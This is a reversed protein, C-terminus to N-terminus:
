NAPWSPPRVCLRDSPRQFNRQMSCGLNTSTGHIININQGGTTVFAAVSGTVNEPTAGMQDLGAGDGDFTERKQVVSKEGVSFFQIPDFFNGFPPIFLSKIGGKMGRGEDM